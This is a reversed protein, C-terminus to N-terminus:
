NLGTQFGEEFEENEISFEDADFYAPFKDRFAQLSNASLEM